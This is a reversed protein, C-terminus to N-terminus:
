VIASVQEFLEASAPQVLASSVSASGSPMESSPLALSTATSGEPEPVALTSPSVIVTLNVSGSSSGAPLSPIPAPCVMVTCIGTTTSASMGASSLPFSRVLVAATSPVLVSGALSSKVTTGVMGCFSVADVSLSNLGPLPMALGPVSVVRLSVPRLVELTATSSITIVSGVLGGPANSDSASM